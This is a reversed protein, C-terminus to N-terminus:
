ATRSRTPSSATSRPPRASNEQVPLPRATGGRHDPRARIRKWSQAFCLDSLKRVEQRPSPQDPRTRGHVPRDHSAELRPAVRLHPSQRPPRAGHLRDQRHRRRLPRDRRAPPRPGGAHAPLRPALRHAEHARWRRIRGVCDWEVDVYEAGLDVATQLLALRESEPGTFAGGERAPRNTVIVPGTRKELLRRLDAAPAYDMRLEIVDALGAASAMDAEIEAETRGIIPICIM